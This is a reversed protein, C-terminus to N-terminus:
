DEEMTLIYGKQSASDSLWVKGDALKVVKMTLGEGSTVSGTNGAVQVSVNKCEAGEKLEYPTTIALYYGDTWDELRMYRTGSNGKKNLYAYQSKGETYLCCPTLADSSASLIGSFAGIQSTNLFAAKYTTAYDLAPMQLLGSRGIRNEDSARAYQIMANGETDEAEFAFGEALTGAPLSLYFTKGEASLQVGSGCDLALQQFAEDTQGPDFTVSPADAEWGDISADGYLPISGHAHLRIGSVTKDGKLTISISGLINHFFIKELADAKGAAVNAKQGFSDEAYAQTSPLQLKVATGSLKTAADSPYVAYFPGNGMGSGPATFTGAKTGAGASLTFERGGPTSSNFVRIKDGSSWLISFGEGLSTRSDSELIATFSISDPSETVQVSERNDAPTEIERNRACSVTLLALLILASRFLIPQKTEM